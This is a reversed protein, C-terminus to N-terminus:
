SFAGKHLRIVPTVGPPSEIAVVDFRFATERLRQGALFQRAM